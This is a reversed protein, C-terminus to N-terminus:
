WAVYFLHIQIQGTFLLRTLESFLGFVGEISLAAYDVVGEEVLMFM